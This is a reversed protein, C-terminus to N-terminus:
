ANRRFIYEDATLFVGQQEPLNPVRRPAFDVDQLWLNGYAAEIHDWFGQEAIAGASYV